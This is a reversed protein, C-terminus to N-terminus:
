QRVAAAGPQSRPGHGRGAKFEKPIQSNPGSTPRSARVALLREIEERTRWRAAAILEEANDTTLHPKLLIVATLSPPLTCGGTPWRRSSAPSSGRWAHPGSTNYTGQEEMHLEGMCWRAMSSYAAGAYLRRADIGALDALLDATAVREAALSSRAHDLLTADAFHTRCYRHVSM